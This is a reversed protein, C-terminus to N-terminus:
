DADGDGNEQEEELYAVAEKGLALVEARSMTAFNFSHDNETKIPVRGIVRDLLFDLRKQDGEKVAALVISIVMHQVVSTTPKQQAALLEAPTMYLYRNLIRELEARTLSRAKKIDM